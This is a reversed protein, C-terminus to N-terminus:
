KQRRKRRRKVPQNFETRPYRPLKGESLYRYITEQSRIKVNKRGKVYANSQKADLVRGKVNDYWQQDLIDQLMRQDDNLKLM